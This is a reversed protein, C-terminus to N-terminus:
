INWFSLAGHKTTRVIENNMAYQPGLVGSWGIVLSFTFKTIKALM